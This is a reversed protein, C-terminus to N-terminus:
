QRSTGKGFVQLRMAGKSKDLNQEYGASFRPGKDMFDMIWELQLHEAAHRLTRRRRRLGYSGIARDVSANNHLYESEGQALYDVIRDVAERMGEQGAFLDQSATLEQAVEELQPRVEMLRKSQEHYTDASVGPNMTHAKLLSRAHEIAVHAARIRRLLDMQRDAIERQRIGQVTVWNVAAKFLAGLVAGVIVILALQLLLEGVKQEFSSDAPASDYLLNAIFVLVGAGLLAIFGVAASRLRMQAGLAPAGSSARAAEALHRERAELSV